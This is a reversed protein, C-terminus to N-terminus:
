KLRSKGPITYTCHHMILETYEVYVLGISNKVSRAVFAVACLMVIM